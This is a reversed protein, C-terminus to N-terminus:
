SRGGGGGQGWNGDNSDSRPRGYSRFGGALRGQEIEAESREKPGTPLRPMEVTTLRSDSTFDRKGGGGPGVYTGTTFESLSLTMKKKKPKAAAAAEQISPFSEPDAALREKEEAEAREADAAWAGAGGWPKSM